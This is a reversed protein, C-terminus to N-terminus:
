LEYLLNLYVEREYPDYNPSNARRRIEQKVEKPFMDRLRYIKEYDGDVVDDVAWEILLEFLNQAKM